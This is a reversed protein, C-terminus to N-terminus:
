LIRKWQQDISHTDHNNRGRNTDKTYLSVNIPPHKDTSDRVFDDGIKTRGNLDGM